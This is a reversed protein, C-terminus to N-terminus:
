VPRALFFSIFFYFDDFQVAGQLFNGLSVEEIATNFVFKDIDATKVSPQKELAEFM